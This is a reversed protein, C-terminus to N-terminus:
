MYTSFKFFIVLNINKRTKFQFGLFEVTYLSLKVRRKVSKPKNLIEALILLALTKEKWHLKTFKEEHM